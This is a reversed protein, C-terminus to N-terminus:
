TSYSPNQNMHTNLVRAIQAANSQFFAQVGQSDLASVQFTINAGGGGGAAGGGGGTYPGSGQAPTIQEGQHVYALGTQTVYNTGVDFSPLAIGAPGFIAVQLTKVVLEEVVVKELYEIIKMVLDAFINKMAQGFTETGSLLGKLQSNWASLVTNAASDITKKEAIAAQDLIRQKDAAYKQDISLKEAAIKQTEAVSLGAVQSEKALAADEAAKRVELETLLIQTKKTESIEGLKVEADLHQQIMKFQEDAPKMQEQVGALAGSGKAGGVNTAPPPPKGSGGEGAGLADLMAQKAPAMIAELRKAHAGLDEEIAKEGNQWHTSIQGWNLTMFDMSVIGARMLELTLQSVVTRLDELARQWLVGGAVAASMDAIMSTIAGTAANIAGALEGVLTGGLGTAAAKMTVLGHEVSSLATITKESMVAGSQDAADRLKQLGASGQDLIPIMQAGGRGLLEMVIATKNGGDAFKSVADAIKNMQEDVSLGILQKASLGLASLAAAAPGTGTQAKQLNVQLREMSLALSESDGGTAKAIFGLEQVGKTSIGLIAAMRETHEGLEAMESVFEAIKDVSFALGFTEALGKFGESVKDAVDRIGEIEAKVRDTADILDKISASFQVQVSSAM